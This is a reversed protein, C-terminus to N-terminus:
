IKKRKAPRSKREGNWFDSAAILQSAALVAEAPSKAALIAEVIESAFRFGNPHDLLTQVRRVLGRAQEATLRRGLALGLYHERSAQNAMVSPDLLELADVGLVACFAELYDIRWRFREPHEMAREVHKRAADATVKEGAQAGGKVMLEAMRRGLEGNSLPREGRKRQEARRERLVRAANRSVIWNLDRM